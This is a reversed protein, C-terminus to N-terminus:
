QGSRTANPMRIIVNFTQNVACRTTNTFGNVSLSYLLAFL